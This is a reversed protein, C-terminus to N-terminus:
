KLPFYIVTQNLNPDKVTSPDTLYIEWSIGTSQLNKEKMYKELAEYTPGIKEYSGTYMASLAKMAPFEKYNIDGENNVSVNVPVGAEFTTNGKPDFQYYVAFPAGAPQIKQQGLYGYLKGYLEGMKPGIESSPISLKIVVAKVASIEKIEIKSSCTNEKKDQAFSVMKQSLFITIFLVLRIKHLSNM